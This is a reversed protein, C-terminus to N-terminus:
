AKRAIVLPRKGGVGAPIDDVTEVDIVIEAVGADRLARTLTARIQELSLETRPRAILVRLGREQQLVQWGAIALGDLAHEFVLPHISMTTGRTGPLRLVDDTRGEVAEVLRFTRGCPCTRRASIRVRDTIEYRILPLTRSFLPTVLLKDGTTGDPVPQGDLDVSEAIVLDEFLHMGNHASCEAAIGGTETAAYVEFPPQGWARTALARAEGTLVESSCNVGRPAIRLRGGLQEEALIRIMSAYAILVAPRIENLAAVLEGLPQGADFRHSVVFASRVTMAVRASGHAPNISSVVAMTVRRVLSTRIGAWENARAYGAIITAWEHVDSPIISKRGSSGSTTSVWYRGAFRENGVLRQLYREVDALRLAPDVVAEDFAGMIMAKTVIPLETLPARELGRHLRQYFRSRRLAHQRLEALARAQHALLREHPWRERGRLRRRLALVRLIMPLNTM